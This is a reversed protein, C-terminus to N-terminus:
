LINRSLVKTKYSLVDSWNEVELVYKAVDSTELDPTHKDLTWGINETNPLHTILMITNLNEHVEDLKLIDQIRASKYNEHLMEQQVTQVDCAAHKNFMEKMRMATEFARQIPSHIIIDPITNKDILKIARNKVEYLGGDSLSKTSISYSGHRMVLLTKWM